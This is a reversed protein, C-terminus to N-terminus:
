YSHTFNSYPLYYIHCQSFVPQHPYTPIPSTRIRFLNHHPLFPVTSVSSHLSSTFCSHTFNLYPFPQDSTPIINLFWQFPSIFKLLFPHRKTLWSNLLCQFPSVFNVLFLHFFLYLILIFYSHCQPFALIPYYHRIRTLPILISTVLHAKTVFNIFARLRAAAIQFPSSRLFTKKKSEPLPLSLFFHIHSLSSALMSNCVCMHIYVCICYTTYIM